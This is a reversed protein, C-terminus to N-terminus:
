FLLFEDFEQIVWILLIKSKYIRIVLSPAKRCLVYVSIICQLYQHEVCLM